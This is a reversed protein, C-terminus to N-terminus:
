RTRPACRAGCKAEIYIYAHPNSWEFKTVTGKVATLTAMDYEATSHHAFIPSSVMFLGAFLALIMFRKTNM